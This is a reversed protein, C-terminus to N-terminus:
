LGEIPLRNKMEESMHKNLTEEDHIGDKLVYHKGKVRDFKEKSMKRYWYLGFMTTLESRMRPITETKNILYNKMSEFDFTEFFVVGVVNSHNMKDDLLFIADFPSLTECNFMLDMFAGFTEMIM